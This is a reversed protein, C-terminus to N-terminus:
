RWHLLLAAVAGVHCDKGQVEKLVDVMEGSSQDYQEMFVNGINTAKLGLSHEKRYFVNQIYNLRRQHPQVM